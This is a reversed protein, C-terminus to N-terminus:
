NSESDVSDSKEAGVLGTPADGWLDWSRYYPELSNLKRFEKDIEVKKLKSLAKSGHKNGLLYGYKIPIEDESIWSLNLTAPNNVMCVQMFAKKFEAKTAYDTYTDGRRFLVHCHPHKGLDELTDGSQEYTYIYWEISKRKKFFFKEVAWQLDAFSAKKMDLNITLWGFPGYQKAESSLQSMARFFSTQDEAKRTPAGRHVDPTYTQNTEFVDRTAMALADSLSYGLKEYGCTTTHFKRIHALEEDSM